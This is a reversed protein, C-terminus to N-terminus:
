DERRLDHLECIGLPATKGYAIHDDWLQTRDLVASVNIISGNEGRRLPPSPKASLQYTDLLVHDVRQMQGDRPLTLPTKMRCIWAPQGDPMTVERVFALKLPLAPELWRNAHVAKRVFIDFRAPEHTM